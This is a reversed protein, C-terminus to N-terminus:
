DIGLLKHTQTSLRWRPHELVFAICAARNAEIQPGDMPQVLFHRFDWSEMAQWDSGPQPWVLKLEDGSRQITESGAKPSICLWDIGPTAAITGNSEVGIEFGREHLADVLEGDLEIVRTPHLTGDLLRAIPQEGVTMGCHQRGVKHVAYHRQQALRGDTYTPAVLQRCRQRASEVVAGEDFALVAQLRDLLEPATMAGTMHALVADDKKPDLVLLTPLSRIPFQEVFASNKPLETDVAGPEIISVRVHRRTVEQRLSESFAGIGHKTLNYVGSGLRPVRGAVSSINVVGAGPQQELLPVFARTLQYTGLGEDQAGNFDESAPYGAQAGAALWAECYPHDNRLDSLIGAKECKKKFRKLAREFNEDEHIIVESLSLRPTTAFLTPFRPPWGILTDAQM